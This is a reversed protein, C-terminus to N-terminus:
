WLADHQEMVGLGEALEIGDLSGRFDGFLHRYRSRVLLFNDDRARESGAEFALTEGGSFEVADLGDFSVRQPESPEGDVWIGRESDAPPDNIGEVLNWAVPRGDVATGVGASWHWSTRRQQYGASQDDVGRADVEWRGDPTEITGAIPIGARKSTWGWGSGSPCIAEVPSADGLTLQARLGEAAIEIRPGDMTVERSGPRLRTNSAHRDGERDWFGWFCQGLPGIQARAACLMVRSDYLGVYRWRKRMQGDRRLPMRAPAIPLAPRDEGPGRWPLQQDLRM